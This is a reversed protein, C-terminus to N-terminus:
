LKEETYITKLRDQVHKCDFKKEYIYMYDLKPNQCTFIM